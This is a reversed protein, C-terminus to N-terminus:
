SISTSGFALYTEHDLPVWRRLIDGAPDPNGADTSQAASWRGNLTAMSKRGPLCKIGVAQPARADDRDILLKSGTWTKWLKMDVYVDDSLCLDALHDLAPRRMGTAFLSSHETNRMSRFRRDRVNYYRDHQTGVLCAHDLLEVMESVFNPPYYDDHEIILAKDAAVHPIAALLNRALTHDPDDAQPERRIHTQGLTCQIPDDGDDVVIWQVRGGFHQQEMWRECLAFAQPADRTPTILTVEPKLESAVKQPAPTGIYEPRVGLHRLVDDQRRRIGDYIMGPRRGSWDPLRDDYVRAPDNIGDCGILKLQTIGTFWAFHILPQITGRALYLQSSAAIDDRSQSLADWRDKFTTPSKFWTVRRAGRTGRPDGPKGWKNGELLVPLSRIPEHIETRRLWHAQPHDLAFFFSDDHSVYRELAVADNIFFVPGDAKDLDRFDFTTPGRGVVIGTKGAFRNAFSALAV